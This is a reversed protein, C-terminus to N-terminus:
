LGHQFDFSLGWMAGRGLKGVTEEVERLPEGSKIM